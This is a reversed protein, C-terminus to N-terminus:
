SAAPATVNAAISDTATSPTNVFPLPIIRRAAPEPGLFGVRNQLSKAKRVPVPAVNWIGARVTRVLPTPIQIVTPNPPVPIFCVRKIKMRLPLVGRTMVWVRETPMWGLPVLREMPRPRLPATPRLPPRQHPPRQHPPRQRPPRQLQRRQLQDVVTAPPPSIPIAIFLAPQLSAATKM